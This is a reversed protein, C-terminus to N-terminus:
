SEGNFQDASHAEKKSINMGGDYRYMHIMIQVNKVCVM